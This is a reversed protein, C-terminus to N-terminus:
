QGAPVLVSDGSEDFLRMVPPRTEELQGILGQVLAYADQHQGRAPGPPPRLIRAAEQMDHDAAGLLRAAEQGTLRRGALGTRLEFLYRRALKLYMGGLWTVGAGAVASELMGIRACVAELQSDPEPRPRAPPQQGYRAYIRALDADDDLVKDLVGIFDVRAAEIMQDAEEDSLPGGGILDRFRRNM